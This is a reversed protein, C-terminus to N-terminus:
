LPLQKLQERNEPLMPPCYGPEFRRESQISPPGANLDNIAQQMQRRLWEPRANPPFATIDYVWRRGKADECVYDGADGEQAPALKLLAAHQVSGFAVYDPRPGEGTAAYGEEIGHEELAQTRGRQVAEDLLQELKGQTIEM